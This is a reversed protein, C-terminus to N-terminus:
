EAEFAPPPPFNYLLLFADSNISAEKLRSFHRKKKKKTCPAPLLIFFSNPMVLWKLLRM